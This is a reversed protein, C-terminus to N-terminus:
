KRLPCDVLAKLGGGWPKTSLLVAVFKFSFLFSFVNFFNRKEKTSLKCGGGENRVKSKLDKSLCGGVVKLIDFYIGDGAGLAYIQVLINEKDRSAMNVSCLGVDSDGKSDEINFGSYAKIKIPIM